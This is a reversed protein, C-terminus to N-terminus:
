TKKYTITAGTATVSGNDFHPLYFGGDYVCKVQGPNYYNDTVTITYKVMGSKDSGAYEVYEFNMQIKWKDLITNTGKQQVTMQQLKFVPTGNMCLAQHTAGDSGTYTGVSWTAEAVSGNQDQSVALFSNEFGRAYLMAYDTSDDSNYTNVYSDKVGIMLTVLCGSVITVIAISLMMELLTFGKKSNKHVITM